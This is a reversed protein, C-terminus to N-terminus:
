FYLHAASLVTLVLSKEIVNGNQYLDRMDKALEKPLIGHDIRQSFMQDLYVRVQENHDYWYDMPNM